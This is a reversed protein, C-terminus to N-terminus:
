IGQFKEKLRNWFGVIRDTHVKALLAILLSFLTGAAAGLFSTVSSGRNSEIIPAIVGDPHDLQQIDEKSRPLLRYGSKTQSLVGTVTAYDGEKLDGRQIRSGEKIYILLEDTGDDIYAKSSLRQTIEGTISLLAGEHQEAINALRVTTPTIVSEGMVKIDAATKTKIRVEDGASSLEGTIQVKSGVALKPYDKKFSYIQIGVSSSPAAIYFYQSGLIGPLVSVVGETQVRDGVDLERVRELPLVKMPKYKRASSSRVVRSAPAVIATIINKSGPTASSTYHWNGDSGLAYSANQPPDDYSISQLLIDFPDFLRVTDETNNLAVRTQQRGLVHYGGPAVTIPMDIIYGRSGGEEDDIKVDELSISHESANFIEIWEAEDSGSPDPMFETIRLGGYDILPPGGVAEGVPASLVTIVRATKSELAGDSVSLVVNYTGVEEYSHQPSQKASENGDGFDWHFRLRDNELDTSDSADFFLEGEAVVQDEADIVAIPPTNATAFTNQLGASPSSTWRWSGTESKAYSFGEQASGEFEAKDAISEDPRRLTLSEGGTNNLAINTKSRPLSVYQGAPIILESLIHKKKTADELSWSNLNALESGGNYMEIFEGESDSGAPNPLFESIFVTATNDGFSSPASPTFSNEPEGSSVSGRTDDNLIINPLGKTPIETVDFDFGDLNSDLGDQKRALSFPDKAAPANDHPNGDDWSGYTVRDIPAGTGDKLLVHDGSNNLRGKPKEVIYFTYPAIEGSLETAVENGDELTWGSLNLLETSNNYLEVWEDEVDPNSVLENILLTGASYHKITETTPGSEEQAAEEPESEVEEEAVEEESPTEEEQEAEPPSYPLGITNGSEREIWNEASYDQLMEDVRELSGDSIGIYVFQEVFNGESDKLGIEEGSERLTSWSSDFVTFSSLQPYMSLTTSAVDAIIAIEGPEIFFDAGNALNLKHNTEDEWFKWGEMDVAASGYNKIELWEENGKEYSGIETIVISPATDAYIGWAPFLNVLTFVAVFFGELFYKM